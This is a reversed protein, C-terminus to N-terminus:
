ADRPEVASQEGDSRHPRAAGCEPCPSAEPLGQLDYRCRACVGDRPALSGLWGALRRLACYSGFLLFLLIPFGDDGSVGAKPSGLLLAIGFAALAAPVSAFLAPPQKVFEL